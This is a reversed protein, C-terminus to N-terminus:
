ATPQLRREPGEKRGVVVRWWVRGRADKVEGDHCERYRLLSRYSRFDGHVFVIGDAKAFMLRVDAGDAEVRLKDLAQDLWAVGSMLSKISLKRDKCEVVALRPNSVCYVDGKLDTRGSNRTSTFAFGSVETLYRAIEQEFRKGKRRSRRGVASWDSM